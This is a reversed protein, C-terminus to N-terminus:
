KRQLVPSVRYFCQCAVLWQCATDCVITFSVSRFRCRDFKCCLHDHTSIVYTSTFRCVMHGGELKVNFTIQIEKKQQQSTQSRTRKTRSQKLRLIRLTKTETYIGDKEFFFGRRKLARQWRVYVRNKHMCM